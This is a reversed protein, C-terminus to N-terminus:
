TTSMAEDGSEEWDTVEHQFALTHFPGPFSALKSPGDNKILIHTTQRVRISVTFEIEFIFNSSM